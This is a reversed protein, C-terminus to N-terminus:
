SITFSDADNLFPYKKRYSIIQEKSIEASIVSENHNLGSAIIEGHPNIIMSEGQYFIKNEDKGIRNSAAVFCQNEIARAKLLANWINSRSEPWNASNILIDYDGTNRLWVPFRLDYCVSPLINFGMYEFIVRDNGHTFFTDEKGMSFLHRKDYNIYRDSSVFSWRNYFKGNDKVIYSGCVGYNGDSAMKKMWKYTQGFPEEACCSVNMTFGTTFMEPLIILDTSGSLPKLLAELYNLNLEIQEWTIDYQIVSLKM